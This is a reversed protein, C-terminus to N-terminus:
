IYIYIYIYSNKTLQLKKKAKFDIKKINSLWHQKRQNSNAHFIKKWVRVKLRNKDKSRFHTGQLYYIMPKKKLNETEKDSNDNQEYMLKTVKNVDEKLEKLMKLVSLQKLNKTYSTWWRTKRLCKNKGRQIPWLMGARKHSMINKNNFCSM